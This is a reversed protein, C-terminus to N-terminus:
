TIPTYTGDIDPFSTSAHNHSFHALTDADIGAAGGALYLGGGEGVGDSAHTGKYSAGSGGNATNGSITCLRLTVSGGAVYM